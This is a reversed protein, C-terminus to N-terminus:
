AVREAPLGDYDFKELTKATKQTNKIIYYNGAKVEARLAKVEAVLEDINLLKKSDSNSYIRSPGTFELEPGQEGVIRLGGSFDGGAAYGPLGLNKAQIYQDLTMSLLGSAAMQYEIDYDYRPATPITKMKAAKWAEFEAQLQQRTAAQEAALQAAQAAAAQQAALQAAAAAQQQEALAKQAAEREAREQAAQQAAAAAQQAALAAAAEAAAQNAQQSLMMAVLQSLLSVTNDGALLIGELTTAQTTEQSVLASLMDISYSTNLDQLNKIVDQTANGTIIEGTQGGLLTAINELLGAHQTLLAIDPSEKKLEDRIQELVNVQTELLTAQYDQWNAGEVSVAKAEELALLMKGQDRAYDLASTSSALSGALLKDAAGPLASLAERDGTMAIAFLKEFRETLEILGGGRISEQADTLSKIINRYENAASRAASAAAGALSIQEGIATNTADLVEKIAQAALEAASVLDDAMDELTSYYTDASEALKLLTIYATQGSTTTLDLSEVIARYAERTDPLAINLAGLITTMQEQLRIHKEEDTFFKDYYTSAIDTLTELNGALKILAESLAIANATSGSYAQNTQQLVELVIEKDVMLRVATDTLSEGVEQYGKLLAGFLTQVAADAQASFFENIAKGIQEANMGNLTLMGGPFVYALTRAMDQGLGVTLEILTDSLDQYVKSMLDVVSADLAATVLWSSYKDSHFWGGEKKSNMQQWAYGGTGGGHSFEGVSGGTMGIGSGSSWYETKGGFIGGLISKGIDQLWGGITDIIGIGTWDESENIGWWDPYSTVAVPTWLEVSGTRIISTVLGTINDNLDKLENHIKTLKEYEMDYTDELYEWSKKLSESLEGEEGGLVSNSFKSQPASTIAGGSAGGISTGISALLAGMTAAMAAIRAFATYPDGLGQTAIAAVAQVVAVARQAIEMAKAAQEWQKAADSGKEYVGAIETFASQLQGFGSAIYNTKTKFLDYEIRKREKAAKEEAALVDGTAKINEKKLREVWELQVQRYEDEFGELDKYLELKDRLLQGDADYQKKIAEITEREGKAISDQKAKEQREFNEKAKIQETLYDDYWAKIAATQRQLEVEDILKLDANPNARMKEIDREIEALAKDLDDMGATAKEFELEAKLKAWEERLKEAAKLAKEDVEIEKQKAAAARQADLIKKEAADQAAKTAAKGEATLSQELKLRKAALDILAQENAKYRNEYEINSDAAAEFRKTSSKVGLAKGPGYLLMQASTLTGGVKDLLMALRRIEAQIDILAIRFNVGWEAIKEKSNGSLEGNLDTIAGTVTEIIEALAPTFALGFAVKLNDLHRQLSLVQKGATGMAAEYTGAIRQGADMVANMRIQSKEAESLQATVRGTAKAVKQYSNEFNVNIGITRLIEVQGSQIGYVMRQFAESSNINGIVAADQAVRALKHSQALDLNAQVMRTLTQRAEIMSIGAKELGKAFVEMQAGSYGANNGVVRMVVGLTEYRAALMTAEKVYQALKLVAYSAALAKVANAMSMFSANASDTARTVKRTSDETKQAKGTLEDLDKSATVVGKSDVKIYLSAIDSM